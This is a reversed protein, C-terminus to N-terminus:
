NKHYCAYVYMITCLGGYRAQFDHVTLGLVPHHVHRPYVRSRVIYVDTDLAQEAVM